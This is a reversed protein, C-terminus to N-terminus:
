RGGFQEIFTDESIIPIGLEKAKRNKSSASEVDNNVLYATKKSVSGTVKGGQSEVYAKFEDRNKYHHVDGTIVFSLGACSGSSTDQVEVHEISLEHLLDEFGSHNKENQYWTVISRSREAGIGEIDEFGDGQHLRQLFGEFGIAAVIKKGADVGILPICLAFIFNVPHVQRSKEISQEMNAVSKEGFGEMQSIEGFHEKLRFIDAFEHIFGANMFRLMTQISLGDIDMGWKSVFRTFKKVNKATCDPNTCHLTKTGSNESVHVKTPAHCVPCQSPIEPAGVADKVAICKPIIKNAKIVSLTCEKGIGLREIESINCLSARSVTTGEIQVPEFVAVPSITSVACSWEIYKLKTDVAEDQWKFAFSDRPFKATRGLSRGYAIDDYTLVLGDSPFDNESIKSSFKAVEDEVTDRTVMYYEVTTFGQSKLWEMQCARSNQFDVGDAQVLTFAYFMVNRKATIQNNLQRVSGSCLNRPNKYRADVDEIEQNIKEFDKYGIVAEGRLILEGQYAIQVPVNKFVKANNTIVEGVEGNGRTGAKYLKGDRYTLVVTLGDMKWSMLVKQDGVFNKLEEVEKTKDLSLMPSEHREKPLESVVEYGVNVTPSNSLTIGLEDELEKLEDYLRDYEYNSMIEQAEQYYARSAKNLLSVLEKMRENKSQGM